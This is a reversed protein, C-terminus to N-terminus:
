HASPIDSVLAQQELVCRMIKEDEKNSDEDNKDGPKEYFTNCNDDYIIGRLLVGDRSIMKMIAIIILLSHQM